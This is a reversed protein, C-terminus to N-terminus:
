GIRLTSRYWGMVLWKRWLVIGDGRSSGGGSCGSKAKSQSFLSCDLEKLSSKM